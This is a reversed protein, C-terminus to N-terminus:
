LIGCHLTTPNIVEAKGTASYALYGQISGLSQGRFTVTNSGSTPPAQLKVYHEDNWTKMNNEQFRRLVKNALAEDGPSGARHDVSAFESIGFLSFLSHIFLVSISVSLSLSLSQSGCDSLSPHILLWKSDLEFHMRWFQHLSLNKDPYINFSM